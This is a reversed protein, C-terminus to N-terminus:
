KSQLNEERPAPPAQCQSCVSLEASPWSPPPQPSPQVSSLYISISSCENGQACQVVVLVDKQFGYKWLYQYELTQLNWVGPFIM